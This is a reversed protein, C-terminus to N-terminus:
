LSKQVSGSETKLKRVMNHSTERLAFLRLSLLASAASDKIIYGGLGVHGNKCYELPEVDLTLSVWTLHQSLADSPRGVSVM